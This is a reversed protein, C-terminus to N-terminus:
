EPNYYYTANGFSRRELETNTNLMNEASGLTVYGGKNLVSGLAKIIQQKTSQDFYILVNRCFILDFSGLRSPSRRLDFQEFRVMRRLEEKIQWEMGQKSFYKILYSAPLGRNVELQSYRGRRARELISDAIDTGVIEFTWGALKMECLLMAISYAEQGSSAAASWIRLRNTSRRKSCLEAVILSRLADFPAIDRFFLTENTTMAELIEKHLGNSNTARMLACLDNLSRLNERRAITLLRAEFLYDKGSEVVIGSGNLVHRQLYEYNSPSLHEPKNSGVLSLDADPFAKTM